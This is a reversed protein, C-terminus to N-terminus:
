GRFCAARENVAHAVYDTMAAGVILSHPCSVPHRETHAAEADDIQRGTM